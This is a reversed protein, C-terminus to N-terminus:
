QRCHFAALLLKQLLLIKIMKQNILWLNQERYALFDILPEISTSKSRTKLQVKSDLFHGMQIAGLALCLHGFYHLFMGVQSM